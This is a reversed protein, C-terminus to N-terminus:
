AEHRDGGVYWVGKVVWMNGMGTITQVDLGKEGRLWYWPPMLSSLSFDSQFWDAPRNKIVVKGKDMARYQDTGRTLSGVQARVLSANTIIEQRMRYYDALSSPQVFDKPSGSPNAVHAEWVLTHGQAKWGPRQALLHQAYIGYWSMNAMYERSAVVFGGQVHCTFGQPLFNGSVPTDPAAEWLSQCNELVLPAAPDKRWATPVKQYRLVQSKKQEALIRAREAALLAQEKEYQEHRYHEYYLGSVALLGAAGGFIAVKKVPFDYLPQPYAAKLKTSPLAQALFKQASEWDEFAQGGWNGASASTLFQADAEERSKIVDTGPIVVGNNFAVYWAMSDGLSGGEPLPVDPLPILFHSLTSSRRDGTSVYESLAMALSAYKKGGSKKPFFGYGVGVFREKKIEWYLNAQNARAKKLGDKRKYSARDSATWTAGLLVRRSGISLPVLSSAM